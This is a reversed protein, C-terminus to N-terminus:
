KAMNYVSVEQVAQGMKITRRDCFTVRKIESQFIKVRSAESKAFFRQRQDKYYDAFLKYTPKEVCLMCSNIICSNPVRLYQWLTDCMGLLHSYIDLRKSISKSRFLSNLMLNIFIGKIQFQMDRNNQMQKTTIGKVASNMSRFQFDPYLYRTM